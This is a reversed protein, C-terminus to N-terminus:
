QYSMKPIFWMSFAIVFVSLVSFLAGVTSNCGYLMFSMFLMSLGGLFGYVGVTTMISIIIFIMCVGVLVAFIISQSTSNIPCSGTSFIEGTRSYREYYDSSYLNDRATYVCSFSSSPMTINTIYEYYTSNPEYIFDYADNTCDVEFSSLVVDDTCSINIEQIESVNMTYNGFGTCNPPLIDIFMPLDEYDTNNM